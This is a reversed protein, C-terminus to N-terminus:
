PCTLGGPAAALTSVSIRGTNLIGVARSRALDQDPRCVRFTDAGSSLDGSALYTVFGGGARLTYNADLGENVQLVTDDAGNFAGNGNVDAFVIWGAEWANNACGAITGRCLTVPVGRQVAESRTFNLDRALKNTESVTQNDRILETLSPMGVSLLIAAVVLTIMLEILTFGKYYPM